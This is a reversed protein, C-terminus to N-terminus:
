PGSGDRDEFLLQFLRGISGDFSRERACRWWAALSTAGIGFMEGVNKRFALRRSRTARQTITSPPSVTMALTM